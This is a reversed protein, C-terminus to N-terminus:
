RYFNTIKTECLSQSYQGLYEIPNDVQIYSITFISKKRLIINIILPFDRTLEPSCQIHKFQNWLNFVSRLDLRKKDFCNIDIQM